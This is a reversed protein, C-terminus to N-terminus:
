ACRRPRLAFPSGMDVRAACRSSVLGRMVASTTKVVAAPSQSAGASGGPLTTSSVITPVAIATAAAFTDAALDDMEVDQVVVGVDV